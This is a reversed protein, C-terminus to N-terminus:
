RSSRHRAAPLATSSSFTRCRAPSSRTAVCRMLRFRSIIASGAFISSRASAIWSHFVRWERSFVGVSDRLPANGFASFCTTDGTFPMQPSRSAGALGRAGCRTAASRSSRGSASTRIIGPAPWQTAYSAGSCNLAISSSISFGCALRDLSSRVHRIGARDVRPGPSIIPLAPGPMSAPRRTISTASSRASYVPRSSAPRPASTTFISGGSPLAVRRM